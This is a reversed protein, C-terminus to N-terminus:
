NSRARDLLWHVVRESKGDFKELLYINLGLDSFGMSALEELQLQYKIEVDSKQPVQVEPKPAEVVKVEDVPVVKKVSVDIEPVYFDLWIKPGFKEGELNVLKFNSVYRGPTKPVNVQVKVEFEAGAPVAPLNVERSKDDISGEGSVCVAKYGAPWDMSGVNQLKWVKTKIEGPACNCRDPITLDEIFKAFSRRCKNNGRRGGRFPSGAREDSRPVRIKLLPHQVDHVNGEECAACLDYDNCVICKFRVGTIPSVQCGDCTVSSHVADSQKEEENSVVEPTAAVKPTEVRAAAFVPAQVPQPTKVPSYAPAPIEVHHPNPVIVSKELERESNLRDELMKQFDANLQEFSVQTAIVPEDKVEVSAESQLLVFEDKDIPDSSESVYVKLNSSKMEKAVNIADRIDEDCTLTVRDNEQDEYKLTFQKPDKKIRIAIKNILDDFNVKDAPFAIRHAEKDYFVKIVVTSM